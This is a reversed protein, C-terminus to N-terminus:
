LAASRLRRWHGPSMGFARNFHRTMHSQDSFGSSTAAEALSAGAALETKVKDLRRMILYRHPSTGFYSRFQRSLTFRDMQALGELTEVAIPEDCCERLLDGCAQLASRNLLKKKPWPTDSHRKLCVALDALLCDRKLPGMERDIDVLADILERRFQPETLVPSAVFPLGGAEKSGLAESIKEPPVYIMRYRLGHETGAGGDHLEDPHIVIVQGPMSAREEGRYQFSQVGSLTLGIAYTDHRHPAFGNGRFRAEIREIGAEEPATRIGDPEQRCLRELGGARGGALDGATEQRQFGRM